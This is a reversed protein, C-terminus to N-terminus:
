TIWILLIPGLNNLNVRLSSFCGQNVFDTGLSSLDQPTDLILMKPSFPSNYFSQVRMILIFVIYTAMIGMFINYVEMLVNLGIWWLVYFLSPNQFSSIPHTNIGSPATAHNLPQNILHWQDLTPLCLIYAWDIPSQSPNVRSIYNISFWWPATETYLHWRVLIPIGMNFILRDHSRRIKLSGVMLPFDPFDHSIHFFDGQYPFIMSNWKKPFIM